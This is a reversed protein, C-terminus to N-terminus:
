IVHIIIIGPNGTTCVSVNDNNNNRNSTGGTDNNNTSTTDSSRGGIGTIACM